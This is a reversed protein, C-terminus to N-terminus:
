ALLTRGGAKGISEVPQTASRRKACTMVPVYRLAGQKQLQQGIGRFARHVRLTGRFLSSELQAPRLIYGDRNEESLRIVIM